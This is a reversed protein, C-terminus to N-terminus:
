LGWGGTIEIQTGTIYGSAEDCLFLLVRTLDDANGYRGAPITRELKRSRNNTNWMVGPSIMNVTVGRPALRVAFSRTLILLGTKAALYPAINPAARVAQAGAFGINIVRGWKRKMMVPAAESMTHFAADLNTRVVRDFTAVSTKEVSEFKYEGVNNVLIDLHRGWRAVARVLGRAAAANAVDAAFGRAAGGDRIIRAVGRKVDGAGKRGHVAGRAGGRALALAM